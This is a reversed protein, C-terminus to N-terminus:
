NKEILAKLKESEEKIMRAVECRVWRNPVITFEKVNHKDVFFGLAIQLEDGTLPENVYRLSTEFLFDKDRNNWENIWWQWFKGSRVFVNKLETDSGFYRELWSYGAYEVMLAYKKATYGLLLRIQEQTKM